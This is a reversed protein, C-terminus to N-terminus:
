IHSVDMSEQKKLREDKTEEMEIQTDRVIHIGGCCLSIETCKSKFAYRVMLAILGAGITVLGYLLSESVAM